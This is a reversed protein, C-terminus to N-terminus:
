GPGTDKKDFQDSSAPPEFEVLRTGDKTRLRWSELHESEIDGGRRFRRATSRSWGLVILPTVVSMVVTLDRLSINGIEITGLSSVIGKQYLAKLTLSLHPIAFAVAVAGIAISFNVVDLIFLHEDFITQGIRYLSKGAVEHKKALRTEWRIAKLRPELALRIYSIINWLRNTHLRISRYVGFSFISAMFLLANSYGPKPDKIAAAILVGVGVLMINIATYSQTWISQLETRLFKYEELRERNKERHERDAERRERRERVAERQRRRWGIRRVSDV